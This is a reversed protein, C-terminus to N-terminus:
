VSHQRNANTTIKTLVYMYLSLPTVLKQNGSKGDTLGLTPFGFDRISDVNMYPVRVAFNQMIATEEPSLKLKAPQDLVFCASLPLYSPHQTSGVNM